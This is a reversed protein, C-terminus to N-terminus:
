PSFTRFRCKGDSKYNSIENDIYGTLNRAQTRSSDGDRQPLKKRLRIRGFVRESTRLCSEFTHFILYNLDCLVLDWVQFVDTM